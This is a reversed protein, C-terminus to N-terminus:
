SIYIALGASTGGAQCPQQAVHGVAEAAADAGQADTDEAGETAAHSRWLGLSESCNRELSIKLM